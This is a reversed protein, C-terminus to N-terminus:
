SNFSHHRRSPEFTVYRAHPSVATRLRRVRAVFKTFVTPNSGVVQQNTNLHEQEM